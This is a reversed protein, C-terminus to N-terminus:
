TLRAKMDAYATEVLAKLADADVDRGSLKRSEAM